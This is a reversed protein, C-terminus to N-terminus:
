RKGDPKMKAIQQALFMKPGREGMENAKLGAALLEIKTLPAAEVRKPRGGFIACQILQEWVSGFSM